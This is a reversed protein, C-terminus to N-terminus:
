YKKLFMKIEREFREFDEIKKLNEFVLEDDIEAYRHVLINRFGKMKKIKEKMAHSVIGKKELKEFLDEEGSPLGLRLEKVILSSIDIVCEILIQLLRECSRKKEIRLYEKYSKPMISKLENLYLELEDLKSVIREKDM